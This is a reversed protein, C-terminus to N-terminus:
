ENSCVIWRIAESQAVSDCLKFAFDGPVGFRDTIGERALRQVIYDAVTPQTSM